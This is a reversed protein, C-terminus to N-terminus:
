RPWGTCLHLQKLDRFHGVGKIRRGPRRLRPAIEVEFFVSPAAGGLGDVFDLCYLDDLVDASVVVHLKACLFMSLGELLTTMARPHRPFYGSPLEAKLIEDTEDLLLLRMRGQMSSVMLKYPKM